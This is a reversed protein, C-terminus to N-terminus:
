KISERLRADRAGSTTTTLVRQNRPDSALPGEFSNAVWGTGDSRRAFAPAGPAREVVAVISPFSTSQGGFRRIYMELADCLEKESEVPRLMARLIEFSTDRQYSSLNGADFAPDNIGLTEVFLSDVRCVYVAKNM